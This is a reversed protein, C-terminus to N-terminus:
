SGHLIRGLTERGQALMEDYDLTEYAPGEGLLREPSTRELRLGEVRVQGLGRRTLGGLLVDGRGLMEVTQLVLALLTEDVNEMVMSLEFRSGPPMVEVDYKIGGSATGLDRDIGVGDRVESRATANACLRADHFFVRGALFSSGFLACTTCIKKEVEPLDPPPADGEPRPICPDEFPDCARLRPHELGRLISELASRLAGKLSSGPLFPTDDANRLIPQDTAAADLSKGAGIRLGTVAVIQGQLRYRSRLRDFLLRRPPSTAPNSSVSESM